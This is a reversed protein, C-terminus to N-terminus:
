LSRSPSPGPVKGEENLKSLYQRIEEKGTWWPMNVTGASGYESPAFRKVGATVCADILNKQSQQDPDSLVQIFSLVTHVGRLAESLGYKDNYDVQHYHVGCTPSDRFSVKTM